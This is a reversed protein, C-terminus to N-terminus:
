HALFLIKGIPICSEGKPASDMIYKTDVRFEGRHVSEATLVKGNAQNEIIFYGESEHNVLTWNQEADNFDEVMVQVRLITDDNMVGLAMTENYKIHGTSSVTPWKWNSCNAHWTCTDAQNKLENGDCM